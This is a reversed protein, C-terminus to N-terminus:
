HFKISAHFLFFRYNNLCVVVHPEPNHAPWLEAWKIKYLSFRRVISLSVGWFYETNIISYFTCVFNIQTNINSIHVTSRVAYHAASLKPIMQEIHNKWNIYNDIQLGNFKANVIEQMHKEKYGIHLTSHLTNKIIFIIINM